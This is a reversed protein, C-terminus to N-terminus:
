RDDHHRGLGLRPEKARAPGPPRPLLGLAAEIVQLKADFDPDDRRDEIVRCAHSATTRDRRFVRGVESHTLGFVIHTLYMATKRAECVGARSRKPTLLAQPELGFVLGVAARVLGAYASPMDRESQTTRSRPPLRFRSRPPGATFQPVPLPGAQVHYIM